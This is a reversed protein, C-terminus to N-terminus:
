HLSSFANQAESYLYEYREILHDMSWEQARARGLSQTASTTTSLARNVTLVLDRADGPTFYEVCEGGAMRYGQLDSAVVRAGSALGELLVLGFSEGRLSPAVVVDASALLDMKTSTPVAGLFEVNALADATAEVERREPGDGVIVVDWEKAEAENKCAALLTSVGKREELRGIFLIKPRDRASREEMHFSSMEFGNFLISSSVGVERSITEAAAQSVSAAVDISKSLYRLLPRTLSYAPGGGARHFTAVSPFQHTALLSYGLAPAFPEHFHVVDPAFRVVEQRVAVAASRSLTIPARSGNAPLSLRRGFRLVRAPTDYEVSDSDDPCVVLVEHDRWSLTRSMALVQEQVGGYASLAYPSVM